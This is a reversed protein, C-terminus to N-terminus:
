YSLFYGNKGTNEGTILINEKQIIHEQTLNSAFLFLSTLNCRTPELTQFKLGTFLFSIKQTVIHKVPQGEIERNILLPMQYRIM